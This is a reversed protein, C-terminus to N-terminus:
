AEEVKGQKALAGGMNLIAHVYDPRIRLAERFHEIAEDFKGKNAFAVGLNNHTTEDDPKIRLAEHYYVMAEDTKGQGARAIGMNSYAIANEPDRKIVYEFHQIAEDIQGHINLAIGLNTHARLNDHTVYLAHEFLTVSNQWYRVQLITCSILVSLIIGSSVVFIMKRQPWKKLLDYVGWAIMVFLGIMPIYTYRDAMAQKGAQILGIVPVLTGLYWLWGVLVYRYHRALFIMVCSITILLLAAGVIQFSNYEKSYPYFVALNQPWFIKGLYKSYSVLVNAVRDGLPLNDFFIVVGEHRCTLFTIISVIISLVFLPIKEFVLRPLAKWSTLRGLPWYDFLLLTFPLTVLMPKAMLGLSFAFLILSYRYLTPREVYYAYSLMAMFWFFTSLVNKREAVWAVSEVNLPHVAFLAAVFASKWVNGSTRKLLIYLLIANAIHFIVNVWHYGGANSGFLQYDLIHSLWTLPHWYGVRIYTMAWTFSDWTLGNKVHPNGTIYDLDDYCILDYYQVQWYTVLIAAALFMCILLDRYKKIDAVGNSESRLSM